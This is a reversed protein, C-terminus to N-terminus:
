TTRTRLGGVRSWLLWLWVGLAGALGGGAFAVLLLPWGITQRVGASFGGAAARAVEEVQRELCAQEQGAPCGPLLAALRDTAGGVAAATLQRGTSSLSMALPGDGNEGFAAVVRAAAADGAAGAAQRALLAFPSVGPPGSITAPEGELPPGTRGATRLAAAVAESVVESVVRKLRARQEPADLSAVAGAVAREGALRMPARNPDTEEVEKRISKAAQKSMHQACGVTTTAVAAAVSLLMLAWSARSSELKM